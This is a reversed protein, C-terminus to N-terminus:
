PTTSATQPSAESRTSVEARPQPASAHPPQGNGLHHQKVTRRVDIPLQERRKWAIRWLCAAQKDTITRIPADAQRKLSAVLEGDTSAHRPPHRLKALADVAIAEDTTMPRFAASM